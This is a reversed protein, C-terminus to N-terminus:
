ATRECDLDKPWIMETSDMALPYGFSYANYLRVALREQRVTIPRLPLYYLMMKIANYGAEEPTFDEWGNPLDKRDKFVHKGVEAMYGYTMEYAAQEMAEKSWALAIKHVNGGLQEMRTAAPPDTPEPFHMKRGGHDGTEWKWERSVKWTSPRVIIRIVKSPDATVAVSSYERGEIRIGGTLRLLHHEIQGLIRKAGLRMSKVEVVGHVQVRSADVEAFLGDAGKGWRKKSLGNSFCQEQVTEGWYLRSNEPLRGEKRFQEFLSICPELALLEALEGKFRNVMHSFIFEVAKGCEPDSLMTKGDSTLARPDDPNHPGYKILRSFLNDRPHDEINRISAKLSADFVQWVSKGGTLCVFDHSIAQDISRHLATALPLNNFVSAMQLISKDPRRTM